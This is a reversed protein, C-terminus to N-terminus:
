NTYPIINENVGSAPELILTANSDTILTQYPMIDNECGDIMIKVRFVPAGHMQLRNHKFLPRPDTRMRRYKWPHRDPLIRNNACTRDHGPINRWIRNNGAIRGLESRISP